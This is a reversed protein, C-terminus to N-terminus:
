QLPKGVRSAKMARYEKLAKNFKDAIYSLAGLLMLMGVIGPGTVESPRIVAGGVAAVLILVVLGLAIGLGIVKGLGM